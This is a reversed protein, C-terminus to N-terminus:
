RTKRISSPAGSCRKRSTRRERNITLSSTEARAFRRAPWARSRTGGGLEISAKIEAIKDPGIGKIGNKGRFESIGAQAIGDLGGFKELLEIGLDVASRGDRGNRIIIALLQADSLGEVGYKLLRERPREDEPWEKVSKKREDSM